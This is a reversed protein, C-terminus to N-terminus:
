GYEQFVKSFNIGQKVLLEKHFDEVFWCCTNVVRVGVDEHDWANLGLATVTCDCNIIELFEQLGLDAGPVSGEVEVVVNNLVTSGGKFVVVHSQVGTYIVEHSFKVLNTSHGERDWWTEEFKSLGFM